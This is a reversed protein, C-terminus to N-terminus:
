KPTNRNNQELQAYANLAAGNITNTKGDGSSNQQSTVENHKMIWFKRIYVPMTMVTNYPIKLYNVCGWLEDWLRKEADGVGDKSM